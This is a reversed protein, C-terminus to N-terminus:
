KMCMGQICIYWTKSNAGYLVGLVLLVGGNGSAELVSLQQSLTGFLSAQMTSDFIITVGSKPASRLM